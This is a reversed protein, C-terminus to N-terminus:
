IFSKLASLPMTEWMPRGLAIIQLARM